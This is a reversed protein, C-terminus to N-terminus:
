LFHLYADLLLRTEAVPIGLYPHSGWTQCAGCFVWNAVPMQGCQPTQFLPPFPPNFLPPSVTPTSCEQPLPQSLPSNAGTQSSPTFIPFGGTSVGERPCSEEEKEEKVKHLVSQELKKEVKVREPMLRTAASEEELKLSEKFPRSKTVQQSLLRSMHLGRKVTLMLQFALMRRTRSGRGGKRRPKQRGTQTGVDKSEEVKVAPELVKMEEEPLVLKVVNTIACSSCWEVVMPWDSSNELDPDKELLLRLRQLEEPSTWFFNHAKDLEDGHREDSPRDSFLEGKPPEKQWVHQHHMASTSTLM